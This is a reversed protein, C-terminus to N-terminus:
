EVDGTISLDLSFGVTENSDNVLRILVTGTAGDVYRAPEAIAFRAGQGLHPFRRWTAAELDFVELEPLGDFV